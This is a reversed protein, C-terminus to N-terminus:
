LSAIFEDLLFGVFHTYYNIDDYISGSTLQVDITEGKVLLATYHIAMNNGVLAGYSAVWQRDNRLLDIKTADSGARGTFSFVYTGTAPATFVGTTINMGEGINSISYTYPIITGVTSYSLSRYASFSVGAKSKKVDNFGILTEYGTSSSASSIQFKM